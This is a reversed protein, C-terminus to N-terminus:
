HHKYFHRQDLKEINKFNEIFQNLYSSIEGKQGEQMNNIFLVGLFIGIVFLLTTLIYPKKNNIVHEKITDKIKLGKDKKM